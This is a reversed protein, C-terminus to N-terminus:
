LYYSKQSYRIRASKPKKEEAQRHLAYKELLKFRVGLLIFSVCSHDGGASLCVVEAAPYLQVFCLWLVSVATGLQVQRAPLICHASSLERWCSLFLSLFCIM